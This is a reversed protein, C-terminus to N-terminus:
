GNKAEGSELNKRGFAYSLEASTVNILGVMKIIESKRVSTYGFTNDDGDFLYVFSGVGLKNSLEELKKAFEDRDFKKEETM